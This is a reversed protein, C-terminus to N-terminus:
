RRAESGGLRSSLWLVAMGITGMISGGASWIVGIADDDIDELSVSEALVLWNGLVGGGEDAVHAALAREVDAKTEKSM